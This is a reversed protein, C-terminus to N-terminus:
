KKWKTEFKTEGKSASAWSVYKERIKKEPSGKGKKKKTFAARWRKPQLKPGRWHSHEQESDHIRQTGWSDNRPLDKLGLEKGHKFGGKKEMQDGTAFVLARNKGSWQHITAAV